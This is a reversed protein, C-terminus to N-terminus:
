MSLLYLVAAKCQIVSLDHKMYCLVCLTAYSMESPQLLVLFWIM